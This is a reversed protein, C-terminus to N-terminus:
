MPRLLETAGYLVLDRPAHYNTVKSSTMSRHMALVITKTVVDCSSITWQMPLLITTTWQRAPIIYYHGVEDCSSCYITYHYSVANGSCENYDYDVAGCSSYTWQMALIITM